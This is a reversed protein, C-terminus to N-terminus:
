DELEKNYFEVLKKNEEVSTYLNRLKESYVCREMGSLSHLDSVDEIHSMINVDASLVSISNDEFNYVIRGVTEIYGLCYGVTDWLYLKVGNKDTYVSEKVNIM